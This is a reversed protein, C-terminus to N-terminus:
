DIFGQASASLTQERQQAFCTESILVNLYISNDCLSNKVKLPYYATFFYVYLANLILVSFDYTPRPRILQTKINTANM